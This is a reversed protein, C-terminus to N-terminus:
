ALVQRVARLAAATHLNTEFMDFRRDVARALDAAVAQRCADSDRGGEGLLASTRELLLPPGNAAGLVIRCHGREPDAVAVALASAFAGTKRALKVYGWRAHASLKPVRVAEVIEDAARATEYIGTAFGACPLSRRGARSCLLTEADLAALVCPWEGAPDALALGGGLTGRTRVARYALSAAVRPMLGRSPDPVRRDEIAAHTVCAGLTVCDAGEGVAALEPLRAIDILLDPAALRLNLMAVLSQGGALLQAEGHQALLAVAEDLSRPRVYDFAPAKM